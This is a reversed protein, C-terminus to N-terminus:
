QYISIFLQKVLIFRCRRLVESFEDELGHAYAGAVSTALHQLQKTNLHNLSTKSKTSMLAKKSLSQLLIESTVTEINGICNFAEIRVHANMDRVIACLQFFFYICTVNSCPTIIFLILSAILFMLLKFGPYITYGVARTKEYRPQVRCTDKGM